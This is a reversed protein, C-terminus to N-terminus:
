RSKKRIVEINKSLKEKKRNHNYKGQKKNTQKDKQQASM